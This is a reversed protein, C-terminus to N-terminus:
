ILICTVLRGRFTHTRSVRVCRLNFRRLTPPLRARVPGTFAEPGISNNELNIQANIPRNHITQVTQYTHSDHIAHIWAWEVSSGVEELRPPPCYPPLPAEDDDEDDDEDERRASCRIRHRSSSGHAAATKTATTAPSPAACFAEALRAFAQKCAHPQNIMMLVHAVLLNTGGAYVVCCLVRVASSILNNCLDIKRLFPWGGSQRM